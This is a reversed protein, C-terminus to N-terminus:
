RQQFWTSTSVVKAYHKQPYVVVLEPYGDGDVDGLDSQGIGEDTFIKNPVSYLFPEHAYCCQITNEGPLTFLIGPYPTLFPPIIKVNERSALRLNSTILRAHSFSGDSDGRLCWLQNWPSGLYILLDLTDDNNLDSLWMYYKEAFPLIYDGLLKRQSFSYNTDGFAISIWADDSNRYRFLFVIDLFGNNDIHGIDASLLEAIPGLHLTHELFTEQRLAEYISLSRNDTEISNLVAICSRNVPSTLLTPYGVTPIINEKVSGNINLSVVSIARRTYYPVVVDNHTPVSSFVKVSSPVDYIRYWQYQFPLSFKVGYFVSIGKGAGHAIIIDNISDNNCDYITVDVPNINLPLVVTDGLFTKNAENTYLTLQRQVDSWAAVCRRATQFTRLAVFTSPQFPIGYDVSPAFLRNQQLTYVTFLENSRIVILEDDGDGTCDYFFCQLPPTDFLLTQTHRIDGLENGEWIQIEPVNKLVCAVKIARYWYKQSVSLSRVEGQVPFVSQELFEGGGIGYFVHITSQVWNYALLDLFRDRNLAVAAVNRVFIDGRDIREERFSGNPVSFLCRIGQVQANVLVFDVQGDNNLDAPFVADARLSPRIVVPIYEGQSNKRYLALANVKKNVVLFGNPEWAWDISIVTDPPVVFQITNTEVKKESHIFTVYLGYLSQASYLILRVTDHSPSSLFTCKEYISPLPIISLENFLVTRPQATSSRLTIWVLVATTFVIKTSFGRSYTYFM